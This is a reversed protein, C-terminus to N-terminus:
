PTAWLRVPEWDATAGSVGIAHAANIVADFRSKAVWWSKQGVFRWRCVRRGRGVIEITRRLSASRYRVITLASM